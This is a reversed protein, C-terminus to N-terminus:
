KGNGGNEVVEYEADEYEEYGIGQNVIELIESSIEKVGEELEIEKQDLERQALAIKVITEVQNRIERMIAVCAMHNKEKEAQTLLTMARDKLKLLDQVFNYKHPDVEAQTMPVDPGNEAQDKILCKTAHRTVAMRSVGHRRGIETPGVGARIARNVAALERPSRRCLICTM